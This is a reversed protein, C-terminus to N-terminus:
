DGSPALRLRIRRLAEMAGWAALLFALETALTILHEPALWGRDWRVGYFLVLDSAYRGSSFPWFVMVGRTDYTFFDMGVHLTYSAFAALFSLLFDSRVWWRLLSAAAIALGLGAALSHTWQNHFRELDGWLLGPVADFDPLVAFLLSIGLLPLAPKASGPSGPTLRGKALRYVLYGTATHIIPSPL